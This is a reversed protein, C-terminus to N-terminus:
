DLATNVVRVLAALKAFDITTKSRYIFGILQNDRRWVVLYGSEATRRQSDLDTLEKFGVTLGDIVESRPMQGIAADVRARAEADEIGQYIPIITTDGDVVEAAAAGIKAAVTARQEAGLVIAEIGDKFRRAHPELLEVARAHVREGKDAIDRGVERAKAYAAKGARGAAKAAKDAQARAAGDDDCGVILGLLFLAFANASSSM